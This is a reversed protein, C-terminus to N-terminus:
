TGGGCLQATRLLLTGLRALVDLVGTLSHGRLDIGGITTGSPGDIGSCSDDAIREVLTGMVYDADSDWLRGPLLRGPQKQM